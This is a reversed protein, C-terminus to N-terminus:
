PSKSHALAKTVAETALKKSPRTITATMNNDRCIFILGSLTAVGIAAEKPSKVVKARKDQIAEKNYLAIPIFLKYIKM